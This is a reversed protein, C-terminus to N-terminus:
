FDDGMWKSISAAEDGTCSHYNVSLIRHIQSDLHNRYRRTEVLQKNDITSITTLRTVPCEAYPVSNCNWCEIVSFQPTIEHILGEMM